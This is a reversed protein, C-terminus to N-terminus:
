FLGLCSYSLLDPCCMVRVIHTLQGAKAAVKVENRRGFFAAAPATTVSKAKAGAGLVAKYHNKCGSVSMQGCNFNQV